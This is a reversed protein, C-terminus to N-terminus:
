TIHFIFTILLIIFNRTHLYTSVRWTYDNASPYLCTSSIYVIPFLGKEQSLSPPLFVSGKPAQFYDKKHNEKYIEISSNYNRDYVDYSKTYSNNYLFNDFNDNSNNNSINQNNSKMKLDKDDIEIGAGTM